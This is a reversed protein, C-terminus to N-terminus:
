DYLRYLGIFTECGKQETKISLYAKSYEFHYKCGKDNDTIETKQEPTSYALLSITQKELKNNPNLYAIGEIKINDKTLQHIQIHIPKKAIQGNEYKLYHQTLSQNLSTFFNLQDIRYDMQQQYCTLSKCQQLHNFWLIHTDQVLHLPADTVLTATLSQVKLKHKQEKFAPSCIAKLTANKKQTCDFEQAYASYTWLYGLGMLSCLLKTLNPKRKLLM